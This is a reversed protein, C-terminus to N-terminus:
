RLHRHQEEYDSVMILTEKAYQPYDAVMDKIQNQANEANSTNFEMRKRIKQRRTILAHRVEVMEKPDLIAEVQHLWILPDHLKYSRLMKVLQEQGYTLDQMTEQIREREDKESLYQERLQELERGSKIGFKLYLYDLLNTNNVYRIKVTNQLLIVKNLSRSARMKENSADHYKMYVVLFTLAAASAILIYGIRVEMQLSFQMVALLAICCFAAVCSIIAMGRLNEMMVTADQKRYLCAQKEGELNKLDARIKEQYEEAERIKEVGEDTDDALKQMKAFNEDSMRQKKEEYRIKDRELTHIARAYEILKEKKEGTIYGIEEMDLLYLDVTKYEAECQELQTQAEDIQELLSTVYRKREYEDAMNVQSIDVVYREEQQAADIPEINEELTVSKKKFIKKWFQM